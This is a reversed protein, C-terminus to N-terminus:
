VFERYLIVKFSSGIDSDFSPAINWGPSIKQRHFQLFKWRLNCCDGAVFRWLEIGIIMVIKGFGNCGSSSKNFRFRNLRFENGENFTRASDYLFLKWRLSIGERSEEERKPASISLLFHWSTSFIGPKVPRLLAPQHIFSASRLRNTNREASLDPRMQQWRYSLSGNQHFARATPLLFSHISNLKKRLQVSPPFSSPYSDRTTQRVFRPHFSVTPLAPPEHHRFPQGGGTFRSRPPVSFLSPPRVRSVTAFQFHGPSSRRRRGRVRTVIPFNKVRISAKEIRVREGDYLLYRLTLKPLFSTEIKIKMIPVSRSSITHKLTLHFPRSSPWKKIFLCLPLRSGISPLLFSSSAPRCREICPDTLIIALIPIRDPLYFLTEETREERWIDVKVEIGDEVAERKGRKREERKRATNKTGREGRKRRRRRERERDM